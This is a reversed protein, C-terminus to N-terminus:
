ATKVRNISKLLRIVKKINLAFVIIAYTGYVIIFMIVHSSIYPSIYHKIVLSVCGAGLMGLVAIGMEKFNILIHVKTEILHSGQILMMLNMGLTVILTAIAPGIMGFMKLLVINLIFNCFLMGISYMMLSFTKNKARFIIAINAFRLMDVAIYVIFIGVGAIYKADYLILMLDKACIIAGFAILWTTTYSFSLYDKYLKQCKGFDKQAICRTIYPIMVTAFSTTLMDFPLIKSANTYIAISETDTYYLVVYKDIDRCLSNTLIYIALPICYKAIETLKNREISFPNIFFQKKGFSFYFYVNQLCESILTIILITTINKTLFAAISVAILKIVSVVFNRIAIVKARGTSVFLVQFMALFNSFMPLLAVIFSLAGIDKNGFNESINNRILIIVIGCLLGIVLQLSFVTNVNRERKEEEKEGNYFYNVGDSLGLISLSSATSVILMAQSYIGYEYLSFKVSLIKTILISILSTMLKTVTLLISDTAIGSGVKRRLM